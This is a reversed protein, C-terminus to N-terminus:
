KKEVLNIIEEEIENARTEGEVCESCEIETCGDIYFCLSRYEELLDQIKQKM